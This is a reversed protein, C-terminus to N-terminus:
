KSAKADAAVAPAPAGTMKVLGRADIVGFAAMRYVAVDRGLKQPVDAGLTGVAGLMSRAADRVGMVLTTANMLPDVYYTLGRVNGTGDTLTVSGVPNVGSVTPWLPRGDTDVADAMFAWANVGMVVVDPFRLTGTLITTAAKVLAGNLLNASAPWAPGATAGAVVAAAFATDLQIAMEKAYLGMLLTLYSPDSRLLTQLSIDQGGAFTQVPFPHPNVLVQRTAIDGKEAAQVGVDPYQGVVPLQVTMGTDPLAGSAFADVTASASGMIDFVESLWADHVLGPVNATTQDALPAFRHRRDAAALWLAALRAQTATDVDGSAVAAVYHGFTPWRQAFDATPTPAAVVSTAARHAAVRASEAQDTNMDDDGEQDTDDDDSEDTDDDDDPDPASAALPAHRASDFRPAVVSSTEFLHAATVVYHSTGREPGESEDATTIDFGGSLADRVGNGMHRLATAVEPNALEARPIAFTGELGDPTDTFAVGYGFPVPRHDLCLKVRSPEAPAVSGRSFEVTDGWWNLPVSVGWPVVLGTLMMPDPPPADPPAETATLRATFTLRQLM